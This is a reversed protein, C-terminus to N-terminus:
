DNGPVSAKVVEASVVGEPEEGALILDVNRTFLADGRAIFADSLPSDHASVRVKPHAWLPSEEPLPETAFVDLLAAELAGRDLAAVLAAEDVLSGRGVNVLVATPKVRGLLAADVLHQSDANSPAALVVVDAEAAVRPLEAPTVMEDAPEDGRPTRRVGIVRAGLARARVSVEGGIHGMGVVVWTSGGVERSWVRQWRRAQQHERREPLGKFHELVRALVWEAIGPAAANSSALRVGKDVLMGFVPHDFGAASSQFFRLTSSKLCHIMFARVAPSGFLDSNAWALDLRLEEAKLAQGDLDLTGDEGLIVPALRDQREALWGSLRRASPEYILLQQM